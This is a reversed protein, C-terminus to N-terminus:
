KTHHEFSAPETKKEFRFRGTTSIKYTIMEHKTINKEVIQGTIYSIYVTPQTIPVDMKFHRYFFFQYM